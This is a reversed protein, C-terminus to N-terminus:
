QGWWSSGVVVFVVGLGEFFALVEPGVELELLVEDAELGLDDVLFTALSWFLIVEKKSLVSSHGKTRPKAVIVRRTTGGDQLGEGKAISRLTVRARFCDVASM